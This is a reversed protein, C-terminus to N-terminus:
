RIKPTTASATVSVSTLPVTGTDAGQSKARVSKEAATSAAIMRFSGPATRHSNSHMWSAATAAIAKVADHDIIDANRTTIAQCTAVTVPGM